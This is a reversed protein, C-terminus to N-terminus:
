AAKKAKKAALAAKVAQSKKFNAATKTDLAADKAKQLKNANRVEKTKALAAKAKLGFALERCVEKEKTKCGGDPYRVKCGCPQGRVGKTKGIDVTSTSAQNVGYKFNGRGWSKKFKFSALSKAPRGFHGTAPDHWPNAENLTEASVFKFSSEELGKGNCTVGGCHECTGDGEALTNAVMEFMVASERELRKDGSDLARGYLELYHELMMPQGPTIMGFKVAKDEIFSRVGLRDYANKGPLPNADTSEVLPAPKGFFSSGLPRNGLFM